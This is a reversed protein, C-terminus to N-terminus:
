NLLLQTLAAAKNAPMAQLIATRKALSMQKLIEVAEPNAMQSLIDVAREESISSYLNALEKAREERRHKNELQSNLQEIKSLLVAVEESDSDPRASLLSTLTAAKGPNMKELIKARDSSSMKSLIQIAEIDTLNSIIPAARNPPMSTYVRALEVINEEWAKQDLLKGELQRNLELIEKELSVIKNDRKDLSQNLEEILMLKTTIESELNTIETALEDIKEEPTLLREEREPIYDKVIPLGSFTNRITGAIDYGLFSMFVGSLIATFLMPLIVIYFLWELKSYSKETSETM